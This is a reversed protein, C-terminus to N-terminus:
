SKSQIRRFTVMVVSIFSLSTIAAIVSISAQVQSTIDTTVINTYTNKNWFIDEAELDIQYSGLATESLSCNYTGDSDKDYLSLALIAPPPNETENGKYTLTVKANLIGSEDSIDIQIEKSSDDNYIINFNSYEPADSEHCGIAKAIALCMDAQWYNSRVGTVINGDIIPYHMEFFTAGAAIYESEFLVSGTINRGDIVDAAALCRVAKCWASVVIGATAASSIKNLINGVNALMNPHDDGPMINVCDYASIDTIESFLIDVTYEANGTFDCGTIVETPGAVTVDWRFQEFKQFIGMYNLGFEDDMLVLIKVDATNIEVASNGSFILFNPLTFLLVFLIIAKKNM